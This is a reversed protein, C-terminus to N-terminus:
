FDSLGLNMANLARPRDLTIVAVGNPSVSGKVFEEASGAMVAFSRLLSSSSPNRLVSLRSVFLPITPSPVGFRIFRSLVQM